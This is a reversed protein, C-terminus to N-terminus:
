RNARDTESTMIKDVKGIHIIVPQIYYKENLDVRTVDVKEIHYLIGAQKVWVFNSRQQQDADELINILERVTM